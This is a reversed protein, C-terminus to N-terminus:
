GCPTILPRSIIISDIEFLKAFVWRGALLELESAEVRSPVALSTALGPQVGSGRPSSPCM